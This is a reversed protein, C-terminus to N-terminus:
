DVTYYIHERVGEPSLFMYNEPIDEPAAGAKTLYADPLRDVTVAEGPLIIIDVRNHEDPLWLYLTKDSDNIIVHRGADKPLRDDSRWMQCATAVNRSDVTIVDSFHSQVVSIIPTMMILSVLIFVGPIVVFNRVGPDLKKMSDPNRILQSRRMGFLAIISMIVSTRRRVGPQAHYEGDLKKLRRRIFIKYLIWTVILGALVTLGFTLGKITSNLTAYQYYYFPQYM